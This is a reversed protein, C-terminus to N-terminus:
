KKGLTAAWLPEQFGVLAVGPGLLFPRKVFMGNGALLRLADDGSMTSIRASLGQARYEIGSTNCLRGLKGGQSKLMTRLEAVTPPTARIDKEDFALGHKELWERASRCTGCKPHAYFTLRSM